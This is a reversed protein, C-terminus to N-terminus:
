DISPGKGLGGSCDIGAPVIADRGKVPVRVADPISLFLTLYM